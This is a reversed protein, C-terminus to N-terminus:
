SHGYGYWCSQVGHKKLIADIAGSKKMDGLSRNFQEIVAPADPFTKSMGFYLPIEYLPTPFIKVQGLLEQGEPGRELEYRVICVDEIIMDVRGALLKKINQLATMAPEKAFSNDDMFSQTYDYGRGVGIVKGALDPPGTFAQTSDKRALVVIKNTYYADSYLVLRDREETRWIAVVGDFHGHQLDSPIRAWPEITISVDYGAGRLATAVVDSAAGFVPLADGTFPSWLNAVLKVPVRPPDEAFAPLISVYFLFGALIPGYKWGVM